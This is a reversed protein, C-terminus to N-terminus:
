WQKRIRRLVTGFDKELENALQKAVQDRTVGGYKKKALLAKAIENARAQLEPDHNLHGVHRPQNTSGQAAFDEEEISRVMSLPFLGSELPPFLGDGSFTGQTGGFTPHFDLLRSERLRALVLGKGNIGPHKNWREILAKGGIYREHPAFNAIEIADFWCAMLDALYDADMCVSYYFRPPPDLENANVYARLGGQEPGEWIWAAIEEATAGLRATLLALARPFAIYSPSPSDSGRQTMQTGDTPKGDSRRPDVVQQEQEESMRLHVAVPAKVRNM